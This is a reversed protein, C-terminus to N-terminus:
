LDQILLWASYGDECLRVEVANEKATTSLIQLHRGAAAQTALSTCSLSDYLNLNVLSQYEGTLSRLLEFVVM